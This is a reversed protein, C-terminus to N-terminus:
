ASYSAGASVVTYAQVLGMEPHKVPAFIIGHRQCAADRDLDDGLHLMSPECHAQDVAQLLAKFILPHPKEAGVESSIIMHHFCHALDHGELIGRLRRDFNSCVVLTSGEQLREELFQKVGPFVSWAIAQSYYGYAAEFFDSEQNQTWSELTKDALLTQLVKHVVEKWYGRDDDPRGGPTPERQTQQQFVKRFAADGQEPSFKIGVEDALRSYVAGVPEAPYILTGAADFSIAEFRYELKSSRRM